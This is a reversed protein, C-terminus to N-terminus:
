SVLIMNKNLYRRASDNRVCFQPTETYILILYEGAPMNVPHPHHNHEGDKYVHYGQETTKIALLAFPCNHSMRHNCSFCIQWWKGTKPSRSKCTCASELLFKKMEEYNPFTQVFKWVNQITTLTMPPNQAPMLRKRRLWAGVNHFEHIEKPEHRHRPPQHHANELPNEEDLEIEMSGERGEGEDESQRKQQQQDDENIWIIDDDEQEEAEILMIDDEEDEQGKNEEILLEEDDDDVDDYEEVGEEEDEQAEEM